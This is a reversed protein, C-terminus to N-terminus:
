QTAGVWPGAAMSLAAAITISREGPWGLAQPRPPQAESYAWSGFRVLMMMMMPATQHDRCGARCSIPIRTAAPIGRQSHKSKWMVAKCSYPQNTRFFAITCFMTALHSIYITDNADEAHQLGRPYCVSGRTESATWDYPCLERHWQNITQYVKTEDEATNLNMYFQDLIAPEGGTWCWWVM